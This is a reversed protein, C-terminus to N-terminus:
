TKWSTQQACCSPPLSGTDQSSSGWQRSRRLASSLRPEVAAVARVTVTPAPPPPTQSSPSWVWIQPVQLRLLSSQLFIHFGPSVDPFLFSPWSAVKGVSIKLHWCISGHLWSKSIMVLYGSVTLFFSCMQQMLAFSLIYFFLKWCVWLRLDWPPSVLSM